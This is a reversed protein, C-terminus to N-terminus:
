GHDTEEHVPGYLDLDLRIGRQGLALLTAAAIGVGENGEGMFWGCFLDIDYRTSLMRWLDLDASLKGLLEVVQADVNEPETPEASLNWLGSKGIRTRGSTGVPIVEGKGHAYTPAAGLLKSIEEPILEDGSIRLTAVARELAPM